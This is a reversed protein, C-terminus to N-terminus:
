LFCLFIKKYNFVTFQLHNNLRFDFAINKKYSLSNDFFFFIWTFGIRTTWVWVGWPFYTTLTAAGTERLHNTGRGVTSWLTVDVRITRRVFCANASFALVGTRTKTSDISITPDSIMYWDTHAILAVNPIREWLTSSRNTLKLFQQM